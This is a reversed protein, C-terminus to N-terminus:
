KLVMPEDIARTAADFLPDRRERPLDLARAAKEVFAEDFEQPGAPFLTLYITLAALDAGLSAPHISDSYLRLKRDASMARLWAEGVPLLIADVAKAADRNAKIVLPFDRSRDAAPWIMYIAPKADAERIPVAFRKTTEVLSDRSEPYSAQQLVVVDWGKKIAALAQGDRWHDELSFGDKAVMEFSVPRGLAKALKEVRGPVDAWSTLSNGIFLVRTPKAGPQPAQALALGSVLAALFALFARRM